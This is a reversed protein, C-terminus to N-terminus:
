ASKKMHGVIQCNIKTLVHNRAFKKHRIQTTQDKKDNLLTASKTMALNQTLNTCISAM